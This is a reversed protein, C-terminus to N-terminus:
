SNSDLVMCMNLVLGACLSCSRILVSVPTPTPSECSALATLPHIQQARLGPNDLLVLDPTGPFAVNGMNIPTSRGRGILHLRMQQAEQVIHWEALIALHRCEPPHGLSWLENM